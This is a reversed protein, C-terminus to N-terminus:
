KNHEIIYESIYKVLHKRDVGGVNHKHKPYFYTHIKKGQKIAEQTVEFLHQPVVVDDIYGHVFLLKGKLNGIHKAVSTDEYGKPNEAPTDMYREGYMVEYFKWDTVAGGAVGVNFTTPAHLMLSSAIFGGFSWGFVSLRRSDVYPLSKLYGIASIQDKLAYTALNGHIVSEFAFGRNDSGRNDLTFIIYDENEAMALMWPETSAMWSDTVLQAHPGGYVYLLVPYKKEPDFSEPKIIKAYLDTKQDDAKLKLLEITGIQYNELPNPAEFITARSNQNTNVINIRNPITVSNYSDILYKGDHSLQTNHTGSDKTLATLKRTQLNIKFTHRDRPDGGTGSIFVHNGDGDFGLIDKVVWNFNTLQKLLTGASTYLYLNMYGSKESLWIFERGNPTFVAPHEPEVWKANRETLITKVKQSTSVDYKNLSYANQERNVEALLIYKEDPSWTLNTLYHEDSTDIDLYTTNKTKMNFIGVKAIESRQGAMPYKIPAHTAPTTSIDVLPYETVHTEDKQYFAIFNGKPSWFIGKNIGFENRHISQGSVINKDAISTIAIKPNEQTAVYLNNDITYAVSKTKANYQQNEAKPDLTITFENKGNQYNFHYFSNESQFVMVNADIYTLEPFFNLNPYVNLFEALTIYKLEKQTQADKIVLNNEVLHIYHNTHAIWQLYHLTQPYLNRNYVADETSISKKQAFGMLAFICLVISFVIKKM